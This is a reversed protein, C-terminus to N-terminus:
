VKGGMSWLTHKEEINLYLLGHLCKDCFNNEGHNETGCRDCIISKM